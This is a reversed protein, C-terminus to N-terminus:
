KSNNIINNESQRIRKELTKVDNTLRVFQREADLIETRLVRKDEQKAKAYFNRSKELLQETESLQKRTSQLERYLDPSEPAQFQSIDTYTM